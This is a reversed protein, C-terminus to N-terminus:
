WTLNDCETIVQCKCEANCYDVTMGNFVTFPGNMIARDNDDKFCGIYM